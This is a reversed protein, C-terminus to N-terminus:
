AANEESLRETYWVFTKRLGAELTTAPSWGLSGAIDIAPKRRRPDEPRLPLSEVEYAVGAVRAVAHAIESVTREDEAGLNVPTFAPMPVRLVRILGDVIDDVYTLSRTQSGDGHVPLAGGRVAASLLAPILRGDAIDMRPGYCNFIRVIRADVNRTARAVSVAAEGFRKGEDYCARPGISNVNGFYTERQPHELPDGYVESTSTFLLRAGTEHALDLMAMTGLSNVRLTQWPYDGYAQPSAPSALHYIEGIGEASELVLRQVAAADSVDAFVFTCRGSAIAGELNSLKGTLLNDVAVVHSGEATLRDVLHSGVFGAAGTVVINVFGGISAVNRETVAGPPL